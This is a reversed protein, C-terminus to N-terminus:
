DEGEVLTGTLTDVGQRSAPALDGRSPRDYAVYPLSDGVQSITISCHTRPFTHRGEKLSRALTEEVWKPDGEYTIYRTVRRVLRESTPLASPAM